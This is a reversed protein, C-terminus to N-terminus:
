IRVGGHGSRACLPRSSEIPEGDEVVPVHRFGQEHMMLLADTITPPRRCATMRRGALHGPTAGKAVVRFV